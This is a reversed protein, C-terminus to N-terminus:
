RCPEGAALATGSQLKDVASGLVELLQDPEMMRDIRGVERHDAERCM